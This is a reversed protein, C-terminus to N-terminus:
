PKINMPGGKQKAEEDRRRTPLATYRGTISIKSSFFSISGSYQKVAPTTIDATGSEEMATCAGQPVYVQKTLASREGTAPNGGVPSSAFLITHKIDQKNM